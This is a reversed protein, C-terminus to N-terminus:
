AFCSARRAPRSSCRATPNSRSTTRRTTKRADVARGLAWRAARSVRRRDHTSRREGSSAGSGSARRRCRRRHDVHDRHLRQSDVADGAAARDAIRHARRRRGAARGSQAAAYIVGKPDVRIAHIEQYTTDLLLFGKGAADVRFVRGPAGTGVLLQRNQDFALSVAHATKSAFFKQARATPRSRTSRHGQRRHRRVRQRRSRRGAVLHVQRRSRLVDTAQGKADVRYIRGDPSTGVYLGGNPAPALAHVEMETSDYFLSGQGSRDVKIVKGDNGTGLFWAGDAGALSRGSLRRRRRRARQTLEPGLTLRGHEDISLQDVEGRLFDAQTAAQWFGPAASLSATVVAAM